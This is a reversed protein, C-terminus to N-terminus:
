LERVIVCGVFIDSLPVLPGACDMIGARNKPMAAKRVLKSTVATTM